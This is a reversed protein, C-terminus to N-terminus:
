EHNEGIRHPRSDAAQHVVLAMARSLPDRRVDYAKWEYLLRYETDPEGGAFTAIRKVGPMLMEATEIAGRMDCCSGAPMELALEGDAIVRWAGWKCQLKMSRGAAPLMPPHLYLPQAEIHETDRGGGVSSLQWGADPLDKWRWRCAVPAPRALAQWQHIQELTNM